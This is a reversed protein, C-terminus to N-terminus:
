EVAKMKTGCACTPTGVEIWRRSMRCICGCNPCEVKMQRCSQKPKSDFSVKGHPYPGLRATLEELRDRLAPGAHTATMKGELGIATAARRFPARHGHSTGVAAHVLEHVLTEGVELPDSLVPSVFLEHHEDESSSSSWCEGIRRQKRAKGSQSPWGCSARVKEPIEAGAELFDPRLKDILQNLWAERTM